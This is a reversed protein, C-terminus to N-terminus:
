LTAIRRRVKELFAARTVPTSQDMAYHALYFSSVGGCMPKLARLLVKRGPDGAAIRAIWWPSGYSTVVGFVKIGSLLPKLRGRALDHEFAVGPVWVRDFYGKLMAPMGFWWQPFCFIVGDARRLIDAYRMVSSPDYAPAHYGRREDVTMLPDFGERYLDTAVVAHGRRELTEVIARFLAHNYSETLPHAHIVQFLM